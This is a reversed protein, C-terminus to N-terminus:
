GMDKKQNINIWDKKEGKKCQKVEKSEVETQSRSEFDLLSRCLSFDAAAVWNGFITPM